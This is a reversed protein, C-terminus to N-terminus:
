CVAESDSLELYVVRRWKDVSDCVPVRCIVALARFGVPGVIRMFILHERDCLVITQHQKSLILSDQNEVYFLPIM